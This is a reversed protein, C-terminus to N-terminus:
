PKVTDLVYLYHRPLCLTFSSDLILPSALKDLNVLLFQILDLEEESSGLLM